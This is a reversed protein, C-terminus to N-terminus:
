QIKLFNSLVNKMENALAISQNYNTKRYNQSIIIKIMTIDLYNKQREFTPPKLKLFIVM